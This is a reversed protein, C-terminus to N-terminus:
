VGRASPRILGRVDEVILAAIRFAMLSFSIPIVIYLARNTVPLTLPRQRSLIPLSRMAHWVILLSAVMMLVEVLVALVLRAREPLREVAFDLSIHERHYIGQSAGFFVVYVFIWRSLEETWVPAYTVWEPLFRSRFVIQIIITLFLGVFGVIEISEEILLTKRYLGRIDM